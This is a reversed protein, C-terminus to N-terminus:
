RWVGPETFRMEEEGGLVALLTPEGEEVGTGWGLGRGVVALELQRHM